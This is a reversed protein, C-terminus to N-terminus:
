RLGRDIPRRSPPRRPRHRRLKQLERAAVQDPEAELFPERFLDGYQDIVPHDADAPCQAPEDRNWGAPARVPVRDGVTSLPVRKPTRSPTAQTRWWLPVDINRSWTGSGTM